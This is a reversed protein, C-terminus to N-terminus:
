AVSNPGQNGIKNHGTHFTETYFQTAEKAGPTITFVRSVFTDNANTAVVIRGGAWVLDNINKVAKKDVALPYRDFKVNDLSFEAVNGSGDVTLIAYQNSKLSRVAVYAKRSAPNVALRVIEIDKATLGLKGALLQDVNAIENKSWAMEKTDGTDVTVVQSGGGILLMGNPGFAIAEISKLM